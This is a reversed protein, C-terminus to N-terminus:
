RLNALLDRPTSGVVTHLKDKFSSRARALLSQTAIQGLGLREGIESVSHGEIYKWELADGYRDPLRDLVSRILQQTEAANYAHQPDAAPAEISELASLVRPDDNTSVVNDAHRRHARLYDVIQRTCIRCLWTFLGAENRFSAIQRMARTLTTQSVDKAAYIDGRLRLLAFRYVRPFYRDFFERFASEDGRLVAAVLARDSDDSGTM